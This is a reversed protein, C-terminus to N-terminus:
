KGMGAAHKMLDEMASPNRSRRRPVPNGKEDYWQPWIEHKKRQIVRSIRNEVRASRSLGHVVQYVSRKDLGLGDAIEAQTYGALELSAKIVAPQM